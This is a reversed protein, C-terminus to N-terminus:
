YMKLFHIASHAIKKDKFYSSENNKSGKNREGEGRGGGWVCVIGREIETERKDIEGEREM